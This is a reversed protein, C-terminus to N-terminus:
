PLGRMWAAKCARDALSAPFLPHGSEHLATPQTGVTRAMAGACRITLVLMGYSLIHQPAVKGSICRVGPPYSSDRRDPRHLAPEIQCDNKVDERPHHNSPGHIRVALGYQYFMSQLHRQGTPM